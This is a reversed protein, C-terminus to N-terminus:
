GQHPRSTQIKEIQHRQQQELDDWQQVTLCTKKTQLRSGTVEESKCIVKNPDKAEASSRALAPATAVTLLSLLLLSRMAYIRKIQPYPMYRLFQQSQLM